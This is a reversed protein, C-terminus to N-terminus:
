MAGSTVNMRGRGRGTFLIGADNGAKREDLLESPPHRGRHGVRDVDAVENLVADDPQDVRRVTEVLRAPDLELREGFPADAARHDVRQALIGPWTANAALTALELRSAFLQSALQPALRRQRIEGRLDPDSSFRSPRVMTRMLAISDVEGSAM